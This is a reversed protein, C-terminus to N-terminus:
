ASPNDQGPIVDRQGTAFAHRQARDAGTVFAYRDLEIEMRDARVKANAGVLYGLAEGAAGAINALLIVVAAQPLLQRVRGTRRIHGISRYLRVLPILPSGAIYVARKWPSWAEVKIRAAAYVRQGIFELRLYSALDSVQTHGTVTEGTLYLTKGMKLFAPYLTGENGFAEALDEGLELISATRYAGHHPGMRQALGSRLPAVADGFQGYIHAWAVLGPNAPMMGWGVADYGGHEFTRVLIEAWDPPPFGHEEAYVVYPGRAARIATAAADGVWAVTGIELIRHSHFASLVGYDPEIEAESPGVIIMEIQDAITQKALYSLTRACTEFAHDTIMFVSIAPSSAM